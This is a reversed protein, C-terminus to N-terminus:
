CRGRKIEGHEPWHGTGRNRGEPSGQVIRTEVNTDLCRDGQSEDIWGYGLRVGDQDVGQLVM